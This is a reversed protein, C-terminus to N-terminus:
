AAEEKEGQRSPHPQQNKEKEEAEKKDARQGAEKWRRCCDLM